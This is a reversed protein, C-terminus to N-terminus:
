GNGDTDLSFGRERAKELSRAREKAKVHEAFTRSFTHTGDGNAVFFFDDSTPDPYLTAEISAKGPSCIPGPPLGTTRYTNYPSRTDLDKFYLKRGYKGLAYRVTPDAELRWGNELRNHYVAAIRARERDLLAEAEVISALTLVEHVSMGLSEARAMRRGDMFSMTEFVMMDVADRADADLRMRYTDPHLYGELSPASVGLAKMVEPDHVLEMFEGADIGVKREFVAAIQSARYGEPITVSRGAVDGYRLSMLVDLESFRPGFEYTGAQLDETLGLLRVVLVFKGASRILGAEELVRGIESLPAGERVEVLVRDGIDRRLTFWAMQTFAAFVVLAMIAVLVVDRLFWMRGPRRARPMDDRKRFSLPM